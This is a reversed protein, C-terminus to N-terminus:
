PSAVYSLESPTAGRSRGAAQAAVAQPENPSARDARRAAELRRGWGGLVHMPTYWASHMQLSLSNGHHIVGPVGLLSLQVYAMHAATLDTDVGTAHIHQASSVGAERLADHAAIVMVGAGICPELLTFFGQRAVHEEWSDALQMRLMMSAVPYPTFYQGHWHSGLELAMFCEGLPDGGGAELALTTHALMRCFRDLQERDYRKIMQMYRAERVERQALDVSNSISIAAMEVFDSWIEWTRFRGGRASEEVLKQLERGHESLRAFARQQERSSLATKSTKAM